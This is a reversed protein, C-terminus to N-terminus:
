TEVVEGRGELVDGIEALDLPSLTVGPAAANERVHAASRSGAIAATVGEQHLVWALALQPLSLQLREAIRKLADVVDL